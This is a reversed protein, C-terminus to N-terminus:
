RKRSAPVGKFADVAERALAPDDAFVGDVGAAFLADAERRAGRECRTAPDDGCRLAPPLFANEPRLTWVHVDLGAAHADAVLRTPAALGGKADLPVVLRTPPALVDAYRAIEALGTKTLMSAYTTAADGALVRDWPRADPSGVLQVLFVNGGQTGLLGRLRKLSDIEFSQIGVPARRTYAHRRIVKLAAQEPDFGLARFHSPHKLEPIVGITRGKQRSLRAALEIVEAFTPVGYRGDHATGRLQPLRERAHLTRLEALSFDETFWGTVPGGDIDRTTRRDAFEARDAVDTTGGIENEHRAVPIGDRTLVLDPEIFDAGDEIAKAYAALTHEPRLASAGRHGIVLVKRNTTPARWAASTATATAAPPPVAVGFALLATLPLAM